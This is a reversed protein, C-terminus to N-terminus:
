SIITVRCHHRETIEMERRYIRGRIRKSKKQKGKLHTAM